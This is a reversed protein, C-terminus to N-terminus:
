GLLAAAEAPLSCRDYVCCCCTSYLHKLAFRSLTCYEGWDQLSGCEWGWAVKRIPLVLNGSVANPGACLSNRHTSISSATRWNVCCGKAWFVSASKACAMPLAAVRAVSGLHSLFRCLTLLWSHMFAAFIGGLALILFSGKAKSFGSQSHFAQVRMTLWHSNALSQSRRRHFLSPGADEQCIATRLFQIEFMTEAPGDCWCQVQVSWPPFSSDETSAVKGLGDASIQFTHLEVDKAWCAGASSCLWHQALSSLDAQLRTTQKCWALGQWREVGYNCVHEFKFHIKLSQRNIIDLNPKEYSGDIFHNRRRNRPDSGHFRKTLLALCGFSRSSQILRRLARMTTPTHGMSTGFLLCVVVRWRCGKAAVSAGIQSLSQIVRLCPM